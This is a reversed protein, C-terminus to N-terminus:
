FVFGAGISLEDALANVSGNDLNRYDLKLVVQPHPKYSFGVTYVQVDRGPVRAFGRPVADQTDLIEYRFFPALMQTSGPLLLPMVDYAAEAYFGFTHEAITDELARSLVDADHVDVFAGLARLWLGRYEVQAHTEWLLTFAGPKEGAFDQDQGANGAWFSTGLTAGPLPTYDVRATGALDDALARNGEQRGERIGESSYGKANLSNMVYARYTLGPALTGFFGVGGERWTTPIILQEVEPRLTGYFFPPEHIENIFGVPVLLLGARVNLPEWLLFDLSLFEVEAAGDGSSASSETTAHEFEIESNLLIRDSFKYGTYLVFRLLDFRESQGRTDSVPKRYNFEGYGGISLGREVQYVKSAAPGFGYFSKLEKVKPLVLQNKISEVEEALIGIRSNQETDTSTAALPAAPAPATAQESSPVPAVKGREAELARLRERLADIEQQMQQLREEYARTPDDGARATSPAAAVVLTLSLVFVAFSRM